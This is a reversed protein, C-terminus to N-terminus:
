LDAGLEREDKNRVRYITDCMVSLPVEMSIQHGVSQNVSYTVSQFPCLRAVQLSGCASSQQM